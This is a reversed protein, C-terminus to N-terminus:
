RDRKMDALASRCGAPTSRVLDWDIREDTLLQELDATRYLAVNPRDNPSQHRSHAWHSATLWGYKLLWGFDSRRIRLFSVAADTTHLQGDILAQEIAELDNFAELARGSYLARGHFEGVIPLRNLRNLDLVVHAPVERGFRLSLYAAASYAGCDPITGIAAVLEDRRGTLDDVVDDAWRGGVPAPILGLYVGREFQWQPMGLHNRLQVPGLTM